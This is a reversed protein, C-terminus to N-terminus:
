ISASVNAAASTGATTTRARASAGIANSVRSAARPRKSTRAVSTQASTTPASTTAADVVKPGCPISAHAVTTALAANTTAGDTGRRQVRGALKAAYPNPAAPSM